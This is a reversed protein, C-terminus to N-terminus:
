RLPMVSELRSPMEGDSYGKLFPTHVCRDVHADVGVLDGTVRWDFGFRTRLVM